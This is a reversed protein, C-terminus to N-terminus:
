VKSERNLGENNVGQERGREKGTGQGGNERGQGNVCLVFVCNM